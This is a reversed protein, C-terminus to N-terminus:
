IGLDGEFMASGGSFVICKSLHGSQGIIFGM